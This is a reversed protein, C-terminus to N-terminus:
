QAFCPPEVDQLGIVVVVAPGVDEDQAAGPETDFPMIRKREQAVVAVPRKLVDGFLGAQQAKM